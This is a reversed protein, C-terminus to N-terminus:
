NDWEDLGVRLPAMALSVALPRVGTPRTKIELSARRIFREVLAEFERVFDGKLEPTCRASLLRLEHDGDGM